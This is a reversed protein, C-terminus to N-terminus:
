PRTASTRKINIDAPLLLCQACAIPTGWPMHRRHQIVVKPTAQGCTPLVDSITRYASPVKSLVCSCVCPTLKMSFVTAMRPLSTTKEIQSM